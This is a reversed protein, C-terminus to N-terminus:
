QRTTLKQALEAADVPLKDLKPGGQYLVVVSVIGKDGQSAWVREAIRFDSGNQQSTHYGAATAPLDAVATFKEDDAGLGINSAVCRSIGDRLHTIDATRKKETGYTYKYSRIVTQDDLKYEVIYRSAANKQLQMEPVPGCYRTVGEDQGLVKPAPNGPLDAPQLVGVPPTVSAPPDDKKDCASLSVVLALGIVLQASARRSNM